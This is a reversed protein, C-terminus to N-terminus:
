RHHRILDGQNNKQKRASIVLEQLEEPLNEIPYDENDIITDIYDNKKADNVDFTYGVVKNESKVIEKPFAFSDIDIINIDKKTEQEM